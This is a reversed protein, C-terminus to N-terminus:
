QVRWRVPKVKSEREITMREAEAAVAKVAILRCDRSMGEKDIDDKLAKNM